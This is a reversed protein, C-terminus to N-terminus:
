MIWRKEYKDPLVTNAGVKRRTGDPYEIYKPTNTTYSFEVLPLDKFIEQGLLFATSLIWIWMITKIFM